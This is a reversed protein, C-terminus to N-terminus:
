SISIGSINLWYQLHLYGHGRPECKLWVTGIQRYEINLYKCIDTNRQKFRKKTKLDLIAVFTAVCIDRVDNM